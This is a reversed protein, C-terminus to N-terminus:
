GFEPREKSSVTLHRRMLAAAWEQDGRELAHLIELHERCSDVVRDQGYSWNYSLLRRLRNQNQVSQHIFRNGSCAAVFDHFEANIDFFEMATPTIEGSMVKEHAERVQRAWARDLTFTPELLGAPEVLLRFRYSEDHAADSNLTPMFQWGHGMKREVIGDQAMRNLARILTGRPVGYRRMLDAESVEGDVNGKMRDAAIALYLDELEDARGGGGTWEIADSPLKLFFGRRPQTELIGLDALHRLAARVPTRSVKFEEVLGLETFHHGVPLRHRRIHDVIQGALDAQLKSPGGTEQEDQDDSDSARTM